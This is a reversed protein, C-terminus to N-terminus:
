ICKSKCFNWRLYSCNCSHQTNKRFHLCCGLWFMPLMQFGTINTTAFYALCFTLNTSIGKILFALDHTAIEDAKKFMGYNIDADGLDIFGILEGSFKDFVLDSRTKMEDILLVVSVVVQLDNYDCTMNKLEVVVYRQLDNYDCTMNKLEVVVYRQLDNYDCTMNKLEVVVYRQLDNYDCTMNKLEVVVYRQLDNYDCTMNKLEVVVYRQLDNYDCTMNKLEVVVYRQLDNYDCTMSNKLEVVVKNNFGPKPKVYNRYDRLTRQSPLKLIGSNRM